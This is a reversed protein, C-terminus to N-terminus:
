RVLGRSIRAGAATEDDEVTVAPRTNFLWLGAMVSTFSPPLRHTSLLFSVFLAAVDRSVDEGVEVADVTDVVLVPLDVLDKIGLGGAM